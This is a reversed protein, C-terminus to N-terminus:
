QKKIFEINSKKINKSNKLFMDNSETLMVRPIHLAFV